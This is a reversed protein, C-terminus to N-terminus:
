INQQKNQIKKSSTPKKNKSVSRDEREQIVDEEILKISEENISNSPIITLCSIIKEEEEKKLSSIGFRKLESKFNTLEMGSILQELTTKRKGLFYTLTM